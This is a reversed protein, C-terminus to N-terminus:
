TFCGLKSSLPLEGGILSLGLTYRKFRSRAWSLWLFDREELILLLWRLGWLRLPVFNEEESFPLRPLDRMSKSGGALSGSGCDPSM